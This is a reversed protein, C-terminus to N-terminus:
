CLELRYTTKNKTIRNTVSYVLTTDTDTIVATDELDKHSGLRSKYGQLFSVNGAFSDSMVGNTYMKIM